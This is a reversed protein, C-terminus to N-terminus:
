KSISKPQSALESELSSPQATRKTIGTARGSCIIDLVINAVQTDSFISQASEITMSMLYISWFHFLHANNDKM